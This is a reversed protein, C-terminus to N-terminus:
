TRHCKRPASPGMTVSEHHRCMASPTTRNRPAWSRADLRPQPPCAIVRAVAVEGTVTDLLVRPAFPLAPSFPAAAALPPRALVLILTGSDLHELEGQPIWRELEPSVASTPWATAMIAFICGSGSPWSSSKLLEATRPTIATLWRSM